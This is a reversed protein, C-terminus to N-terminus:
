VVGNDNPGGFPTTGFLRSGDLTLKGSATRGDNTGGVFTHLVQFGSGDTNLSFVTGFNSAGGGNTVGYIKSGSITLSGFPGDGETGAFTHIAQFGSGDTNISYITGQNNTGGDTAAGYLVAGSLVPAVLPRRGENSAFNHLVQYSTGDFNM